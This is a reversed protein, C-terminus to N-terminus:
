FIYIQISVESCQRLWFLKKKLPFVKQPRGRPALPLARRFSSFKLFIEIIEQLFNRVYKLMNKLFNFFWANIKRSISRFCLNKSFNQSFKLINFSSEIFFTPTTFISHFFEIPSLFNLLFNFNKYYKKSFNNRM